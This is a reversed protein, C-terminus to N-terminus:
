IRQVSTYPLLMVTSRHPRSDPSVDGLRVVNVYQLRGVFSAFRSQRVHGVPILLVKVRAPSVISLPDLDMACKHYGELCARIPCPVKGLTWVPPDLKVFAEPLIDVREVLIPSM